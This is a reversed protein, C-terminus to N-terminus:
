DARNWNYCNKIRNRCRYNEDVCNRCRGSEYAETLPTNEKVRQENKLVRKEIAHLKENEEKKNM